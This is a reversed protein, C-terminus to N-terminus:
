NAPVIRGDKMVLRGGVVAGWAAGTVKWGNFPTNKGQSAFAKANIQWKKGLDIITLDAAEGVKLSGRNLGLIKAPGITLKPLLKELTIKGKGVLHTLLLALTTELGSIGNAAAAFEVWKDEYTHPAHDSAIADITGDKLGELLAACDSKQRLPPNVKANTNYGIILEETAVLYHPCTEATVPFGMKKAQRIIAVSGATSVHAIHVPGFLGAMQCDRGVMVEEALKSIGKLGWITSLYGENMLGGAALTPEECHSIIPKGLMSAYELARRMVEAKAIPKGDDSFAVAGAEAMLGMESIEEGAMKKTACGVPFVNALGVLRAKELIYGIIAPDDAPPNTNAMCAVSTFGGRIAARSGTLVTEKDEFGPERLHVHMDILGPTILFGDAEVIPFNPRQNKTLSGVGAIRGEKIIIDVRRRKGSIPEWVEGGIILLDRGAPWTTKSTTKTKEEVRKRKAM